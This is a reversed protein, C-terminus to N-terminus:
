RLIYFDVIEINVDGSMEKIRKIVDQETEDVSKMVLITKLISNTKYNVIASFTRSCRRSINEEM